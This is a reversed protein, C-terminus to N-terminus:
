IKKTKEMEIKALLEAILEATERNKCVCLVDYSSLGGHFREWETVCYPLNNSDDSLNICEIHKIAPLHETDTVEFSIKGKMIGM